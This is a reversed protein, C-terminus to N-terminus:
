VYKQILIVGELKTIREMRVSITWAITCLILCGVFLTPSGTIPTKTISNYVSTLIWRFYVIKFYLEFRFFDTSM